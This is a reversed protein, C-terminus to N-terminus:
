PLRLAHIVYRMQLRDQVAIAGGLVSLPVIGFDTQDIALTGSVTLAAEGPDYSADTTYSRTIGHLTIDVHLRITAGGAELGRIGVRAYPHRETELVRTLMNLRTGAIDDATPVTTFGAEARLAPEDVVLADLPLWLDARAVGPAVFGAVDHSSVVHDHGLRALSGGRRVEIVVMSRAPDVRYVPSGQAALRRYDNTPFEAPERRLTDPPAVAPAGCGALLAAALLAAAGHRLKAAVGDSRRAVGATGRGLAQGVRM